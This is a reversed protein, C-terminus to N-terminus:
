FTGQLIKQVGNMLDNVLSYCTEDVGSFLCCQIKLGNASSFFILFNEIRM